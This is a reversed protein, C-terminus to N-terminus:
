DLICGFKQWFQCRIYFLCVDVTNFIELDAKWETGQKERVNMTSYSIPAEVTNLIRLKIEVNITKSNHLLVDAYQSLLISSISKSFVLMNQLLLIEYNSSFALWSIDSTFNTCCTMESLEKSKNRRSQVIILVSLLLSGPSVRKQIHRNIQAQLLGRLALFKFIQVKKIFQFTICLEIALKQRCNVKLYPRHCQPTELTDLVVFIKALGARVKNACKLHRNYYKTQSIKHMARRFTQACDPSIIHGKELNM